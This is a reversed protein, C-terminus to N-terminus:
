RLFTRADRTHIWVRDDVLLAAHCIQAGGINSAEDLAAIVSSNGIPDGLFTEAGSGSIHGYLILSELRRAAALWVWRQISRPARADNRTFSGSGEAGTETGWVPLHAVGADALKARYRDIVDIIMAPNRSYDYFHISLGDIQDKGTGSGGPLTVPANLFRTVSHQAPKDQDAFGAGLIPVGLGARRLTYAINALDSASGAFFPQPNAPSNAWGWAPTWRDDYSNERGDWPLTPENWVEFAAIRKGYRAKVAQVYRALAAHGAETPPSAIGSWSPWRSPEGPYKQYFTPTGYVLWVVPHGDNASMWKDMSSWDYEGPRMEINSWFAREELGDVDAKLTRVYGYRYSPAPIPTRARSIWEPQNLSRHIGMFHAPVTVPALPTVLERAVASPPTAAVCSGAEDTGKDVPGGRGAVDDGASGPRSSDPKQNAGPVPPDAPDPQPMGGPDPEPAPAAADPAGAIDARSQGPEARTSARSEPDSAPPGVVLADIGGGGSGGCAVLITCVLMSVLVGAGEPSRM